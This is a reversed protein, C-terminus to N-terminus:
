YMDAAEEISDKWPEPQYWVSNYSEDLLVEHFFFDSKSPKFKAGAEM